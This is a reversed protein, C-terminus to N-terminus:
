DELVQPYFSDLKTKANTFIRDLSPRIPKIFEQIHIPYQRFKVSMHVWVALAESTLIITIRAAFAFNEVVVYESFTAVFLHSM